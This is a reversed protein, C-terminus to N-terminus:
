NRAEYAITSGSSSAIVFIRNVNDLSGCWGDGPLLEMGTSTTVGSPGFYVTQSGASLVRICVFRATVTPLVVASSTVAQQGTSLTTFGAPNVTATITTSSLTVPISSQDSAIVVPTSAAMAKQGLTNIRGTFTADLLFSNTATVSPTNTIFANVGPVMVAGPSTGYNSPSGLAVSNWQTINSSVLGGGGCGTICNIRIARNTSDGPDVAALTSTDWARGFIFQQAESKVPLFLLILVLLSLVKATAKAGNKIVEAIKSTGGKIGFAELLARAIGRAIIPDKGVPYTVKLERDSRVGGARELIFRGIGLDEFYYIAKRELDCDIGDVIVEEGKEILEVTFDPLSDVVAYGLAEVYGKLTRAALNDGIIKVRM